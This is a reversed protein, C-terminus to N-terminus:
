GKPGVTVWYATARSVHVPLSDALLTLSADTDTLSLAGSVRLDAVAPDCRLVGHRHRALEHVVDALRMDRALLTGRAWLVATAEVPATDAVGMTNFDAQEGARLTYSARALPRIEVAHEFVAVRCKGQALQRVSFRTGLARVVGYPTDVLFPRSAPAPDSQTTILIEGAVLRIRRETEGFAINVASGTNLMLRSGDPLVLTKREGTATAVDATWSQWPLQRWTLYGGPLAFGFLSLLKLAERRNCRQKYGRELTKVAKGRVADPVQEFTHFVVQARQWAVDHAPNQRRWAEFAQRQAESPTDYQLTMAWDAAEHLLATDITANTSM